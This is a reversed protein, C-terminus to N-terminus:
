PRLALVRAHHGADDDARDPAARRRAARLRHRQQHEPGPHGARLRPGREPGPGASVTDYLSYAYWQFTTVGPLCATPVSAQYGNTADFALTVTCSVPTDTAAYTLEGNYTGDPNLQFYVYYM